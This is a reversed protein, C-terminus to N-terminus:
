SRPQYLRESVYVVGDMIRRATRGVTVALIRPMEGGFAAEVRVDMTGSPHGIVIEQSQGPQAGGFVLANIVSGPLVAGIAAPIGATVAFAKHMKGMAM